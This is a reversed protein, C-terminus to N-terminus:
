SKDTKQTRSGNSSPPVTGLDQVLRLTLPKGIFIVLLNLLTAILMAGAEASERRDLQAEREPPFGIVGDAAIQLDEVVMDGHMRAGFELVPTRRVGITM